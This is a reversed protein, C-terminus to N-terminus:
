KSSHRDEYGIRRKIFEETKQATHYWTLNNVVLERAKEGMRRRYEPERLLTIIAEALAKEDEPPVFYAIDGYDRLFQDETCTVITARGCAWYEALKLASLAHVSFKKPLTLICIDFSNVYLPVRHYPVKGIFVVWKHIGLQEVLNRSTEFSPGHGVLILRANSVIQFVINSAQILSEIDHLPTFQGVYGLYLGDPKLGVQKRCESQEMPFFLDTNVGNEILAVKGESFGFETTLMKRLAVKPVIVGCARRLGCLMSLSYFNKELMSFHPNELPPWGNLESVLPSGLLVSIFAPLPNFSAVREYICHPKFRIVYWILYWVLFSYCLILRPISFGWFPFFVIRFQADPINVRPKPVLLLVEHGLKTLNKCIELVHTRPGGPVTLEALAVYLIRM